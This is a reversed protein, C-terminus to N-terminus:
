YGVAETFLMEGRYLGLVGFGYLTRLDASIRSDLSWFDSSSIDLALSMM